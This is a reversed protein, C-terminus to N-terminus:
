TMRNDANAHINNEKNGNPNMTNSRTNIPFNFPNARLRMQMNHICITGPIVKKIDNQKSNLEEGLQM